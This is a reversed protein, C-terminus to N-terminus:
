ALPIQGKYKNKNSFFCKCIAEIELYMTHVINFINQDLPFIIEQKQHGEIAKELIVRVTNNEEVKTLRFHIMYNKKLMFNEHPLYIVQIENKNVNLNTKENQITEPYIFYNPIPQWQNESLSKIKEYM